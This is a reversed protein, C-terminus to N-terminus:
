LTLLLFYMAALLEDSLALLHRKSLKVDALTTSPHLLSHLQYYYQITRRLSRDSIRNLPEQQETRLHKLYSLAQQLIAEEFTTASYVFPEPLHFAEGCTEALLLILKLGDHIICPQAGRQSTLTHLRKHLAESFAGAEPADTCSLIGYFLLLLQDYRRLFIAMDHPAFTYAYGYYISLAKFTDNYGLQMNRKALAGDFFLTNGLDWYCDIMITPVEKKAPQKLGVAHLDVAIIEDAGLSIALNIPLNDHYCGDVYKKGHIERLKFAPRCASSAMLYDMLDDDAIDKVAIEVPILSPYEVTVLGLAIPSDRLKPLDITKQILEELPTTNAGNHLVIDKMLLKFYEEATLDETSEPLSAIQKTTINAWLSTAAALDGQAMMVGNLSGISTGTVIDYAINLADLAQWVGIQYAGRAGGGSLVIARKM